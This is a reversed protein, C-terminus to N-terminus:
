RLQQELDDARAARERLRAELDAIRGDKAAAAVSLSQLQSRLEAETRASTDCTTLAFQLDPIIQLM